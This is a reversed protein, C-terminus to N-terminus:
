CQHCLLYILNIKLIPVKPHNSIEKNALLYEMVPPWNIGINRVSWQLHHLCRNIISFSDELSSSNAAFLCNAMKVLNYIYCHFSFLVWMGMSLPELLTHHWLALLILWPIQSVWSHGLMTPHFIWIIQSYCFFKQRFKLGYPLRELNWCVMYGSYIAGNLGVSICLWVIALTRDCGVFSLGVLGLAPGVQGITQMLKKTKSVSLIEKSILMDSIWGFPLSALFMCLYPLGSIFGNQLLLQFAIFEKLMKQLGCLKWVWVKFLFTSSTLCIHLSKQWSHTSDGTKDWTVLQWLWCQFQPSYTNSHHPHFNRGM